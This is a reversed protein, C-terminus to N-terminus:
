DKLGVEYDFLAHYVAQYSDPHLDEISTANGYERLVFLVTDWGLEKAVASAANEINTLWDSNTM